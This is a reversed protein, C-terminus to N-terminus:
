DTEPQPNETYFLPNYYTGNVLLEMHLSPPESGSSGTYGVTEGRHVLSDVIVSINGMSAYKVTYRDDEIVVYDGFMPDSGIEKVFGTIASHVSTGAPMSIDLGRHLEPYDGYPNRRYGYYSEVSWTQFVPSGIYQVLGHTKNLVAYIAKGTSNGELRGDVVSELSRSILEVKLISVTYEELIYEPEEEEEDEEGDDEENEGSDDDEEDEDEETEDESEDEDEDEEPPKPVLRYRTEETPTLKLEYMANFLDNLCAMADSDITGFEAHLYNILTFPDHGISGLTYTYEDYDPYEDEIEDIQERLMLEMYSFDLDAQDIMQPSSNYTAASLISAAETTLSTVSGAMEGGFLLLVLLILLIILIARPVAFVTRIVTKVVMKAASVAKKTGEATQKGAEKAAKKAKQAAKRRKKQLQKKYALKKRQEKTLKEKPVDFISDTTFDSAKKAAKSGAETFNDKIDRAIYFGYRSVTEGGEEALRLADAGANDDKEGTAKSITEGAKHISYDTAKISKDTTKSVIRKSPKAHTTEDGGFLTLGTKKGSVGKDSNEKGSSNGKDALGTKANYNGDANTKRDIKGNNGTNRHDSRRPSQKDTRSADRQSNRQNSSKNGSAANNQFDSYDSEYDGFYSTRSDQGSTSEGKSNCTNVEANRRSKRTNLVSESSAHTDDWNGFGFGSSGENSDGFGFDSGGINGSEVDSKIISEKIEDSQFSDSSDALISGDETSQNYLSEAENKTEESLRTQAERKEKAKEKLRKHYEKKKDDSTKIGDANSNNHNFGDSKHIDSNDAFAKNSGEGFSRKGDETFAKAEDESFATSDDETFSRNNDRYNSEQDQPEAKRRPRKHKPADRANDSSEGFYGETVEGSSETNETDNWINM